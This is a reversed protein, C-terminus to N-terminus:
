EDDPDGMGPPMQMGPPLQMGPPMQLGQHPDAPPAGTDKADDSKQFKSVEALAWESPWSAISYVTDSGEKQAYRSSGTSVKGVKLKYTGAGDKLTVTVTAAPKDLGTVDVGKGDGFDDASLTKFARLAEGVKSDQFKAIPQGKFTGAWKDGKTFSFTGHENEIGLQVANADDFKFIETDRWAKVERSYVFASYGGVSYVGPQGEVSAMQGRGGSKGFTMDLEKNGGKFVVLHLAKGGQLEYGKKQEETAQAAIVEKLKLEKLNDLVSKVSSQNAAFKVPEVLVWKDGDKQLVVTGKENTIELKDPDEVVKLEPLAAAAISTSGIKDDAKKRYFAFGGIAALAIVGVIIQKDRDM